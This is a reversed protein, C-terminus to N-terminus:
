FLAHVVFYGFCQEPATNNCENWMSRVKDGCEQFIKTVLRKNKVCASVTMHKIDIVKEVHDQMDRMFNELFAESEKDTMVVIEDKVEQPLRNWAKPMFEEGVENIISDMLLLVGDEMEQSFRVPDLRHFIEKIDFLRTTMLDFTIGAMKKAKTPIIGQWGIIGWPQDKLRFLQIGWFEIPYFTMQLALVNTVYGVLGAIWPILFYEWWEYQLEVMIYRRAIATEFFIDRERM